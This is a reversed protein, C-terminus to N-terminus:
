GVALPQLRPRFVVPQAIAQPAPKLVGGNLSVSFGVLGVLIMLDRDFQGYFVLYFLLRTFFNALLFANIMKLSPPSHRFNAHLVKFAGWCYWLFFLLGWIGFPIMLTLWGNHYNGSILTDEYSTFYGRKM